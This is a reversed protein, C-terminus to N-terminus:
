NNMEDDQITMKWFLMENIRVCFCGSANLNIVIFNKSQLLKQCM